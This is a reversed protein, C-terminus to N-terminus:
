ESALDCVIIRRGVLWYISWFNLSTGYFFGFVLRCLQFDGCYSSRAPYAITRDAMSVDGSLRASALISISSIFGVNILGTVSLNGGIFGFIIGWGTWFDEDFTISLTLSLMETDEAADHAGWKEIFLAVWHCSIGCASFGPKSRVADIGLIEDADPASATVGFALFALHASCGFYNLRLLVM